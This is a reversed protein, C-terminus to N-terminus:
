PTYPAIGNDDFFVTSADTGDAHILLLTNADNQFPATSPTFNATYRATNSIRVEDFHGSFPSTASDFGIGIFQTSATFNNTDTYNSGEQVGNVYMKSTGSSRVVAVHYWTGTTNYANTSTIRDAGGAFYIIKHNDGRIYVVYAGTRAEYLIEQLSSRARRFWFEVTFDGTGLAFASDSAITLYDGTGDLLLSSGGFKSQATDIQANGFATIGKQSRAGNDDRFVTSNNTGDAHMLFLTNADNVFPATPSTFAATYRASNSVRVEDIYANAGVRYYSGISLPRLDASPTGSISASAREVGNLYIKVTSGNKVAAIHYWTNAVVLSNSSKITNYVNATTRYGFVVAGNRDAGLSWTIPFDNREMIGLTAPLGNDDTSAISVYRVWCEATFGSYSNWDALGNQENPAVFVGNLNASGTLLSSGGFQSHTTSVAATGQAIIGKPARVGNDDEFFTVADTGDMHLLLLTNADNVFPATPSTFNATYRANNSIRFEDIHGITGFGTLGFSSNLEGIDPSTGLYSNSDSYTSGSQTGNIFLKTSTGSRSLAVHYWTNIAFQTGSNGIRYDGNVYLYVAGGNNGLLIYAGNAATDRFDIISQNGSVSSYRVWCEITFDSSGFALDAAATIDLRDGTGDFLASSGGFQSQATDVQANGVATIGKKRRIVEAAATVFSAGVM